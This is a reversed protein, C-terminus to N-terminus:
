SNQNKIYAQVVSLSNESVTAVFYSNSWFYPKWYYEKLITDAFQKRAFRSTKTKIVNALEGPSTFPDAEFLIHIHDAEGNMELIVLRKEDFIDQITKYVIEKVEGTLVPKRYKTVLVMHYQLLFCSHRNTYYPQGSKRKYMM